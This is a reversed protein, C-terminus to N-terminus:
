LMRLVNRYKWNSSNRAENNNGISAAILSQHTKMREMDTNLTQRYENSLQRLLLM